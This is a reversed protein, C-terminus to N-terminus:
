HSKHKSDLSSLHLYKQRLSNRTEYIKKREKPYIDLLPIARNYIVKKCFNKNQEEM